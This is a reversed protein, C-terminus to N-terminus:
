TKPARFPKHCSGCAKGVAGINAKLADVGNGAEASLTKAAAVLGMSAEKVKPFNSWIDPKARTKGALGPATNDSGKPWMARGYMSAAALVNGAAGKAANADYPMKGKVMAGLQGMNFAYVQMLAKRAKIQNSFDAAEAVSGLGAVLMIAAAFVNLKKM